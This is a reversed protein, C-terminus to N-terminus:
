VNHARFLTSDIYISTFRFQARSDITIIINIGSMYEISPNKCRLSLVPATFLFNFIGRELAKSTRNYILYKRFISRTERTIASTAGHFKGIKRKRQNRSFKEEQFNKIMANRM